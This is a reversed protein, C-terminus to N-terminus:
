DRHQDGHDDVLHVLGGRSRGFRTCEAEPPERLNVHQVHLAGDSAVMRELLLPAATSDDRACRSLSRSFPM